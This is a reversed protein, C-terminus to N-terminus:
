RQIRAEVSDIVVEIDDIASSVADEIQQALADSTTFQELAAEIRAVIVKDIAETVKADIAPELAAFLYEIALTAPRRVAINRDAREKDAIAADREDRLQAIYWAGLQEATGTGFGAVYINEDTM